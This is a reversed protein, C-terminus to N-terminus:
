FRNCAIILQNKDIEFKVQVIAAKLSGKTYHSHKKVEKEAISWVYYDVPNLDPFNPLWINAAIHDYLNDAMWDQTTSLFDLLESSFHLKYIEM